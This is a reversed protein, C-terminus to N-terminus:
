RLLTVNGRVRREMPGRLTFESVIGEYFYVGEACERNNNQDTGDWQFYPDETEFVILGWRNFVRLDFRYISNISDAQFFENKGDGNPTFVNPFWIRGCEDIDVCFTNSFLSQNRLSDLATVSFCGVVSPPDTLFTYEEDYTSDILLYDSSPAPSYYIYYILEESVCSDPYTWSLENVLELCNVEVSLEPPCPPVNDVPIGCTEQSYNIIPDVLGASSYGGVTKVLYCYERGNVLGTDAYFPETSFGISDFNGSVPDERYITFQENTWPVDGNWDLIIARDTGTANLFISPAPVSSGIYFFNGPDSNFFDIKYYYQLEQTNLAQDVFLTDDLGERTAVETYENGAGVDRRMVVYEFPGPTVEFDLETPKSWAVYMRGSGTGTEDVSVNTIIPLDKKLTACVELSAKSEAGDPFMATIMYCYEIGHVLGNGGNDDAFSTIGAGALQAIKQYGTYSPVGTECYGPIFGFYSNKRYISYGSANECEYPSWNLTISNGIPLAEVLDPPPGIVSIEFSWYASLNVDTLTDKAKLYVVHPSKRIHACTTAWAFDAEVSGSGYVPNPIMVAPNVNQLFPSGNASLSLMDGDPDTAGFQLTLVEGAVVCTDEVEAIEPPENDCAVIQIQLDRTVYGIRQGLRWEEVIFAVNYEGQITPLDWVLDGTLEDITFSNSAAPLTYGPIPLGGAGRCITLKYSLSDGDPDYANPNHVYLRNVCGFDLPPNLLEVSNNSGLFPNVILETEIYFPINVSNPINVIGYNRNPDELSLKFIGAGAYTHQGVYENRRIVPTLDVKLTRPLISSTGDGWLIELEPRDAPSPAYTYTIIKVEYTLGGLHKYVIEGAREHTAFAANVLFFLLFTVYIIRKMDLM